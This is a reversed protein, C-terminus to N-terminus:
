RPRGGIRGAHAMAGILNLMLRVSVRCTLDGGALDPMIEVVDFGAVRGRAAVGRLVGSAEDYTLGGFAPSAVAPAASPDLGDVDLTIFYRDAAPVKALAAEVGTRHIEAAGILVSGYARADDFEVRRGSGFGRLGIQAMGRVWRMESARRMPSSLGDRIGEREDRWDIHADIQVVCIPPQEAYARLVPIPVSDDGGLVFPVAGRALIAKVAAEAAPPAEDWHGAVMAVDGCDVIRINRGAFLDDGFDFDYNTAYWPVYRMSQERLAAPARSQSAATQLDYPVCFPVGLVAIDADLAGLDPCRPVDLFTPRGAPVPSLRFAM